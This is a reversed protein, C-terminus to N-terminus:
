AANADVDNATNHICKCASLPALHDRVFIVQLPGSSAVKRHIHQCPL